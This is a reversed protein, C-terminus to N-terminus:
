PDRQVQSEVVLIDRAKNMRQRAFGVSLGHENGPMVARQWLDYLRQTAVRVGDQGVAVPRVVNEIGDHRKAVVM